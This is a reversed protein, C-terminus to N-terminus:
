LTMSVILTRALWLTLIALLLLSKESYAKGTLKWTLTRAVQLVRSVLPDVAVFVPELWAFGFGSYIVKVLIMAALMDMALCVFHAMSILLNHVMGM